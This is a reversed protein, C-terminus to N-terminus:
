YGNYTKIRQILEICNQLSLNYLERSILIIEENKTHHHQSQKLRNLLGPTEKVEINLLYENENLGLGGYIAFGASDPGRHQLADLMKATNGVGHPKDKFVVGAIGCLKNGRQIINM